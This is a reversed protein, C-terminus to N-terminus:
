KNIVADISNILDRILSKKDLLNQVYSESVNYMIFIKSLIEPDRHIQLDSSSQIDLEIDLMGIVLEKHLAKETFEDAFSRTLEQLRTQDGTLLSNDSYYRSLKTRLLKNSILGINESAVMNDFATRVQEFPIHELLIPIQTNIRDRICM